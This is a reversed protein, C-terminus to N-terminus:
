ESAREIENIRSKINAYNVDSVENIKLLHGGSALAAKIGNENDELILVEDPSVGLRKMATLYIDPDPKSRVVDQNSLMFDFYNTLRAKEMMLEVTKRISNSGVAMRYGEARLRSLAYEHDFRPRCKNYIMEITYQQKIENIFSHLYRPLGKELSLKELKVKTPLGDYASLHEFRSIEYGFLALARNLAEYHWDKAEILVGDMDFLIVKIESM